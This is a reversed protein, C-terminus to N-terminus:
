FGLGKDLADSKLQELPNKKKKKGVIKDAIKEGVVKNGSKDVIINRVKDKGSQLAKQKITDTLIDSMLVSSGVIIFAVVKKM